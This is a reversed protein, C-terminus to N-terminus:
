ATGFPMAVRTAVVAASVLLALGVAPVAFEIRRLNREAAMLAALLAMLWLSTLGATFMLLMLAWCCGVCSWAYAMGIQFVELAPSRGHWARAVFGAPNRCARLCRMKTPALQYVGALGLAGATVLYDREDLWSWNDAVAHVVIDGLQFLQGVLLWVLGFAGLGVLILALAHRRSDLLRHLTRVFRISTPLMMAAIMMLWAVTFVVQGIAGASPRHHHLQARASSHTAAAVLMWAVATVALMAVVLFREDRSTSRPTAVDISV